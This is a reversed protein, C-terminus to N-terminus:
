GCVKGALCMRHSPCLLEGKNNLEGNMMDAGAHPCKRPFSKLQGNVMLKIKNDDIEVPTISSNHKELPAYLYDKSESVFSGISWIKAWSLNSFRKNQVKIYNYQKDRHFEPKSMTCRMSFAARTQHSMNIISGHLLEAHFILADGAAMDTVYQLSPYTKMGPVMEREIANYKPHYNASQPLIAMGNKDNAETLSVWVNLTNKPHFRWSDKHQGHPNIKGRGMKSEIYAEKSKVKSYPLHLRLNPQLELYSSQTHPQLLRYMISTQLVLAATSDKASLSNDVVQEVSQFKHIDSLQEYDINFYQKSLADLRPQLQLQGILNNVKIIDGSEVLGMVDTESVIRQQLISYYTISYSSLDIIKKFVQRNKAYQLPIRYCRGLFKRVSNGIRFM